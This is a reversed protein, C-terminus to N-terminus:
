DRPAEDILRMWLEMGWGAAPIFGVVFVISFFMWTNENLYGLCAM